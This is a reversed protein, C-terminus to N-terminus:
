CRGGEPAVHALQAHKQIAVPTAGMVVYGNSISPHWHFAVEEGGRQAAVARWYHEDQRATRLAFQEPAELFRVSTDSTWVALGREVFSVASKRSTFKKERNEILVQQSM